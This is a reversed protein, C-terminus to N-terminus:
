RADGEPRATWSLAAARAIRRCTAEAERDIGAVRNHHMHLLSPLVGVPEVHEADLARRYQELTSRRMEWAEAVSAGGGLDNLTHLSGDENTLQLALAQVHRPAAEGDGRPLYGTLWDLGAKRSGLFGTTIDVFSAATIAPQLDAPVAAAMQVLAATSDAVFFEEAAELAAGTGYRGTEPKDTDWQVRHILGDARLEAAWAAVKQVATGFEEPSPLRIRLRLHPDPDAYRIFWAEPLDTDWDLLLRSVHSTLVEPVRAASSYLKVYAWESAGPLRESSRSVTVAAHREPAPMPHQDSAFLMTVEHARGVWGYAAEEPAERLVATGHRRLEARVLQQHVPVDLDLRLRRDSGGLYVSRPLDYRSRWEAFRVEWDDGAGLDQARLRWLASSLITRGVRVRPLFPLQPAAGWSFPLLVAAHSRHLECVFRILPHTSSSLEVANMVSPEILRGTSRSVLYLRTADAMVGLDDLDLTAEPNHEGVAVLEPAVVPCRSVNNIPVRLPPGSVQGRVAGASLTPLSAHLAAIRDRDAQELSTLFRGTTIGAALSLGVTSLTFRGEELARTSQALVTVTFEIHAPVQSASGASLAEIDDETLVVERQDTLAAEQALALVHEDRPTTALVPRKLVTGRYSVPFGLGTDPDTLDRVPVIAGLSYQELFRTRYDIWAPTGGPFPTIHAIVELARQAEKAVAEPLVIKCEPRLNVALSRDAIGALGCMAETAESRLARQEHPQARNHRDLLRHVHRLKDVAPVAPSGGLGAGDLQALLHGLADDCTMPAHLSTLLVRHTVLDGVMDEIKQVPTDPYDAHLKAVIDAVATPTRALALVMEAARTRRLTTRTPGKTGPQHPVAIQGGRIVCTPDTVVLLRRRVDPDHELSTIVDRLWLADARAFAQHRTGLHVHANRGIRVPAPGAFLGFPTARYQMRLLYRTLSFATRRIRGRRATGDIVTRIGTALAPAALEIAEARASDSWVQAIWQRCNEADRATDSVPAPCSPLSATLPFASVRIMSADLAHYM